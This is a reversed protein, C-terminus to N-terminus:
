LKSDVIELAPKNLNEAAPQIDLAPKNQSEVVSACGETKRELIEIPLQSQAESQVEQETKFDIIWSRSYILIINICSFNFKFVCFIFYM